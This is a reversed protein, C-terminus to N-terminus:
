RNNETERHKEKTSSLEYNFIKIHATGELTSSTVNGNPMRWVTKFLRKTHLKRKKADQLIEFKNYM